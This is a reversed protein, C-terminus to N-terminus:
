LTAWVPKGLFGDKMSKIADMAATLYGDANSVFTLIIAFKSLDWVLDHLPTQRKGALIQYGVLLIYVSIGASLLSFM